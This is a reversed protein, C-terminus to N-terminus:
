SAELVTLAAVWGAPYFLFISSLFYTRCVSSQEYGRKGRNSRLFLLAALIGLSSLICTSKADWNHVPAGNTANKYAAKTKRRVSGKGGTRVSGALRALKALKDLNVATGTSCSDPWTRNPCACCAKVYARHMRRKPRSGCHLLSMICLTFRM